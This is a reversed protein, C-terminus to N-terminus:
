RSSTVPIDRSPSRTSTGEFTSPLSRHPRGRSALQDCRGGGAGEGGGHRGRPAAEQAAPGLDAGAPEGVAHRRAVRRRGGHREPGPQPRLPRARARAQDDGAVGPHAANDRGGYHRGALRDTVRELGTEAAELGCRLSSGTPSRRRRRASRDCGSLAAWPSWRPAASRRKKTGATGPRSTRRGRAHPWRPARGRGRGRRSCRRARASAAAWRSDRAVCESAM